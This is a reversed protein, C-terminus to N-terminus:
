KKAHVPRELFAREVFIGIRAIEVQLLPAVPNSLPGRPVVIEIVELAPGADPWSRRAAPAARVRSSVNM